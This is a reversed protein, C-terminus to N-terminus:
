ILSVISSSKSSKKIAEIIKIVELGDKGDVMPKKNNKICNIFHKWEFIYTSDHDIENKYITKWQKTDKKFLKITGDIANWHLTGLKGIAMCFRTPDHRYFDMNLNAIIDSNKNEGSLCLTIHATDETDIKLNGQRHITSNVWKVNGFLWVLYDIDHSLELLVGGGLKKIASVSKTYDSNPRWSPLFSGVESRISIIKGIIGKKLIERFKILSKMFRLNYGVMLIIKKSECMKILKLINKSSNSIPKEILLHIGLKALPYAVSIHHNAPNALIAIQPKFKIADILNTVCHDIYEYKIKKSVKHRLITIKAHPFLVRALRAHRKGISGYGVILVSKIM